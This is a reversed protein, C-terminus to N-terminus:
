MKYRTKDVDATYFIRILFQMNFHCIQSSRVVGTAVISVM